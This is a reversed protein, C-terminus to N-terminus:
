AGSPRLSRVFDQVAERTVRRASGIKVSQIEGTRILEYVKTRGLACAEAVEDVTFLQKDM